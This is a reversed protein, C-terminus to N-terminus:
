FFQSPVVIRCVKVGIDLAYDVTDIANPRAWVRFKVGNTPTSAEKFKFDSVVFALLYTSMKVTPDFKTM